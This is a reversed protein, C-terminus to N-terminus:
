MVGKGNKSKNAYFNYGLIGSDILLVFKVLEGDYIIAIINLFTLAIYQLILEHNYKM